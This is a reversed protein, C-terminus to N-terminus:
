SRAGLNLAMNKSTQRAQEDADRDWTESVWSGLIELRDPRARRDMAHENLAPIYHFAKSGAALFSARGEMALEELIKLCDATFGPAVVDVRGAGERGLAQLTKDTYPQLM